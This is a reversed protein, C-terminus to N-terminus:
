APFRVTFTTGENQRSAFSIDGGLLEVYRKVINLGLGTGQINGVNKARYFKGFLNEQEEEPIGIGEDKVQISAMDGGADVVLYINTHQGSYKIANSLLNLLVNHIIKKDQVIDAPGTYVFHIKQGAKLEGDLEEVVLASLEKMDVPEKIVDMRGQELKEISLFDNLIDTLNRASSKIREIHKKRKELHEEGDYHGILSASSLITSLPTRFEHSAMAVFRSKLQGLDRERELAGALEYTREAVKRELSANTKELDEYMKCREVFSEAMRAYLGMKNLDQVTFSRPKSFHTSIMGIPAGQWDYLPTSQVARFGSRQAIDRHATFYIDTETDEVTIQRKQSLARGCAADEGAPVEKFYDLFEASFGSQAEIVLVQRVPDLLQVNGKDAGTLQISAALMEKLGQRLDTIRWLRMGNDNLGSLAAAESALSQQSERLAEEDKKRQTIDTSLIILQGPKLSYFSRDFWRGIFSIYQQHRVNEGKLVRNIIGILTEDLAGFFESRLHGVIEHRSKGLIKETAPNVELFLLDTIHGNRDKIIQQLIFSEHIGEFILRYEKENQRILEEAKIRETIDTVFAVAHPEGYLEYYGLSIEVPFEQGNKKRAYLNLGHGMPRAKPGDFYAERYHEHRERMAEPMLLEVPQGMLETNKYGFIKEICPNALIISGTKGIVLIGVTAYRFLAQFGAESEFSIVESASM